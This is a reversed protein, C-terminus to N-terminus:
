WSIRNVPTLRGQEAERRDGDKVIYGQYEQNPLGMATWGNMVFPSPLIKGANCVDCSVPIWEGNYRRAIHMHTGNSFGGECSPRGIQDGIKVHTGLPVRGDSAMHLYLITWGTTEDGDGDLDLIVVGNGSRAIVGPAVATGWYESVYCPSSGDPRDDPPAFDIASWASGTGWGGHPGGTFFWTQGSPFPFTLEPQQLGEPVLVDANGALPDGFLATYTKYLGESGVAQEWSSYDSQLSFFFQVGITGANLNDGYRLRTGDDFELTDAGKYKWGYYGANLQNAVWSLQKYLGTRDFGDPSPKGQIPFQKLNDDLETKTLWASRYQLIALLLRPDVSFELSVRQVVATATLLVDEVTDSATRIYGSQQAVFSNVDFGTSSPGRVFRSDSIIKFEPSNTTPEGPLVIVQGVELVNPDTIQNLKLISELRVGFQAAIGSLTDGSQVTYTKNTPTAIANEPSGNTPSEPALPALATPTNPLSQVIEQTPTATIVVVVPELKTCGALLFLVIFWFRRIRRVKKIVDNAQIYMLIPNDERMQPNRM